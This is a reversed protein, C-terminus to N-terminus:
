RRRAFRRGARPAASGEFAVVVSYDGAAFENILPVVFPETVLSFPGAGAGSATASVRYTKTQIIKEGKEARVSVRVGASYTGASGAPGILVNGEVGVKIAIQNGQQTCERAVDSIAFQHRVSASAPGGVRLSAGGDLIEVEPCSRMVLANPDVAAPAPPPNPTGFAMMNLLSSGTPAGPETTGAGGGGCGSLALGAGLACIVAFRTKM